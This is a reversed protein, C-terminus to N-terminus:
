LDCSNGRNEWYEVLQRGLGGINGMGFLVGEGREETLIQETIKDPAQAKLCHISAKVLPALKRKFAPAHFGIIYFKSFEPFAEDKLAKRWQLTRDGRDKRFNLLGIMEKGKFIGREKLHSLILRTSEPDNASFANVFLWSRPPVDLKIKWIKLHGFDPEAKIMGKIAVDRDIGLFEAAALALRINEEFEFSASKKELPFYQEFSKRPIQIVRSGREEAIKQFVPFFEEKLVFVTSKEPILSAFCRAIEEKSSGMQAIHDLRVNTIILIHPRFIQISESYGTEPHISMLESVLADIGLKEARGLLKKQELISLREGRRIEEEKGGPFVLAAKAGTTKALVKFGSERLSAAVLRTVSSKGRTGTVCIRLPISALRHRLQIRELFLYLGLFAM